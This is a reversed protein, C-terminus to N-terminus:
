HRVVFEYRGDRRLNAYCTSAAGRCEAPIDASAACYQPWEGAVVLVKTCQESASPGIAGERHATREYFIEPLPNDLSPAHRWVWAALRSPHLPDDPHPPAFAVLCWAASLLAIPVMARAVRERGQEEARRLLPITLPIVWLGYRSMGPTGGSNVNATQAFGFAFWAGVAAAFVVDWGLLRSLRRGAGLAVCAILAVAFTPFNPFLGINLDFFPAGIEQLTPVHLKAAGTVVQPTTVGLGVMYYAPHLVALTCGVAAGAWFRRQRMRRPEALVAALLVLPVALAIPPNQTAALGLAVASLCPRERLWVMALSLLSFTFVETHPKDLWWVIPSAFLFATTPLSLSRRVVSLALLFLAVNLLTFAIAPSFGTLHVLWVGPVALLPYMWFHPLEYRHWRNLLVSRRLVGDQYGLGVAARREEAWRLESDSFSPPHLEALQEAMAVYETADGIHRVPSFAILGLVVVTAAVILV